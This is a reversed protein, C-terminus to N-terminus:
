IKPSYSTLFIFTRANPYFLIPIEIFWRLEPDVSITFMRFSLLLATKAYIGMFSMIKNSSWHNSLLFFTRFYSEIKSSTYMKRNIGAEVGLKRFKAVSGPM